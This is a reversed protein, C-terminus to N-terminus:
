KAVEQTHTLLEDLMQIVYGVVEACQPVVSNGLASTRRVRHKKDLRSSIGHVMRAVDPEDAWGCHSFSAGRTRRSGREATGQLDSQSKSTSNLYAVIKGSVNPGAFTAPTRISLRGTDSIEGDTKSPKQNDSQTSTSTKGRARKRRGQQERLLESPSYAAIFIRKREHWAGCDAAAIPISLSQYGIRELDARVADVWKTAGSAVNEVCVWRPQREEVLRRFESWLGSRAGSLGVRKGASSVDQCPFGGCILDVPALDSGRVTTIDSYREANPWHTALCNRLKEDIEVQWVTEGLGSWELGLELGGIGSFLSGIRM